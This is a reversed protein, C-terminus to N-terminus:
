SGGRFQRLTWNLRKPNNAASAILGAVRVPEPIVSRCSTIRLIDIARETTLDIGLASVGKQLSLHVTKRVKKLIQGAIQTQREQLIAITPLKTAANFERLGTAKMSSLMAGHLMAFRLENYFKSRTVMTALKRAVHPETVDIISTVMGDLCLSGRFVVGVVVRKRLQTTGDDMGIVRTEVKLGM